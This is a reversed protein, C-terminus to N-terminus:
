DLIARAVEFEKELKTLNNNKIHKVLSVIEQYVPM